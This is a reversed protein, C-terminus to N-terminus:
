VGMEVSFNQSKASKGISHRLEALFYNNTFNRRALAILRPNRYDCFKLTGHTPSTPNVCAVLIKYGFEDAVMRYISHGHGRVVRCPRVESRFNTYNGLDEDFNFIVM